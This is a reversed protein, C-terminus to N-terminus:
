LEVYRFGAQATDWLVFVLLVLVTFVIATAVGAAGAPLFRRFFAYTM